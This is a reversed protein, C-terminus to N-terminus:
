LNVGKQNVNSKETLPGISDLMIIFDMTDDGDKSPAHVLEGLEKLYADLTKDM